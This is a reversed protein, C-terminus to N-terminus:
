RAASWFQRLAADPDAVVKPPDDYIFTRRTQPTFRPWAPYGKASPNGTRAFAAFTAQFMRTMAEQSAGAGVLEPALAVTGFVFPLEVAHPARLIGDQVPSRWDIRYVYVPAPQSAKREALMSMNASFSQDTMLRAWLHMPKDDPAATRYLAVARPGREPGLFVTARQALQDDTLKPWNPDPLLV